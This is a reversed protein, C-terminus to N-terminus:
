TNFQYQEQPRLQGTGGALAPMGPAVAGPM